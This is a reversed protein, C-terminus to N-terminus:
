AQESIVNNCAYCRFVKLAPHMSVAPLKGLQKMDAGCQECSHKNQDAPDSPVNAEEVAMVKVAMVKVAMVKVAMVAM